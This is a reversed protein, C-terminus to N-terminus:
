MVEVSKVEITYNCSAHEGEYLDCRLVQIQSRNAQDLQAADLQKALAEIRAALITTSDVSHIHKQKMTQESLHYENHCMNEILTKLEENTKLRLTRGISADLLMRTQTRLGDTFHTMQEISSMNHNLTVVQGKEM